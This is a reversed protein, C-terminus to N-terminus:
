VYYMTKGSQEAKKEREILNQLTISNLTKDLAKKMEVWVERTICFESRPCSEPNGVCDVPSITGELLQVVESLTIEGPQKM